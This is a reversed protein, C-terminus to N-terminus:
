ESFQFRDKFRGLTDADLGCEEKLAYFARVERPISVATDGEMPDSNSSLGTKLESSRVESMTERERVLGKFLDISQRLLPLLDALAIGLSNGEFVFNELHPFVGLSGRLCAFLFSFSPCAIRVESSSVM